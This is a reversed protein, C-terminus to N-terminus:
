TTTVDLDHADNRPYLEWIRALEDMECHIEQYHAVQGETIIQVGSGEIVHGVDAFYIGMEVLSQAAAEVHDPPLTAVLTGSSIMKIPDFQFAQAFRSVVPHIPIHSADVQLGVESRQAIELLTELLGGRTVDHMATTGQEALALAEPIVSVDTMFRRAKVLDRKGLGLSQAVDVFDYALIATGELAIGKTVFIHDGVRAGKTCVPERGSLTGLATVAVLPKSLNSSYGTHGGIISVKIENAARGVDRMIEELLQEDAKGPVLILLLIWRPTAGSTAIDNCTVHVALWGINKVAGVIPDLHSVLIDDGVRTLAADEGFVAGLLVDPDHSEMFPYVCKNLVALSFKSM